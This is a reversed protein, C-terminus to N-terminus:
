FDPINGVATVDMGLRELHAGIQKRLLTDDEVILISTGELNLNQM